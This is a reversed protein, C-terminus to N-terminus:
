THNRRCHADGPGGQRPRPATCRRSSSAARLDNRQTSTCSSRDRGASASVNRFRGVCTARGGGTNGRGTPRGKNGSPPACAHSEDAVAAPARGCLSRARTTQSRGHPVRARHPTMRGSQPPVAAAGRRRRRAAAAHRARGGARAAGGRAAVGAACARGHRHSPRRAAPAAHPCQRRVAVAAVITEHRGAQSRRAVNPCLPYPAMMRISRSHLCASTAVPQCTDGPLEGSASPLTRSHQMRRARVAARTLLEVIDTVGYEKAVELANRNRQAGCATLRATPIQGCGRVAAAPCRRQLVGRPIPERGATPLPLPSARQGERQHGSRAARSRRSRRAQQPVRRAPASDLWETAHGDGGCSLSILDAFHLPAVRMWCAWNCATTM